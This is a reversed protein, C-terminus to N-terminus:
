RDSVKIKLMCGGRGPAANGYRSPKPGTANIGTGTPSTCIRYGALEMPQVLVRVNPHGKKLYFASLDYRMMCTDDGSCQGQEVGVYSKRGGDKKHREIMKDTIVTGDELQVVVPVGPGLRNKDDDLPFEKLTAGDIELYASYDGDGHHRVGVAHLMEHAFSVDLYPSGDKAKRDDVMVEPVWIAKVAGPSAAGQPECAM